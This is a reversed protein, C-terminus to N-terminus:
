LLFKSHVIISISCAKQHHFLHTIPRKGEIFLVLTASILKSVKTFGSVWKNSREVKTKASKVQKKRSLAFLSSGTFQRKRSYENNNNNTTTKKKKRNGELSRGKEEEIRGTCM